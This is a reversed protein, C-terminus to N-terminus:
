PLMVSYNYGKDVCWSSTLLGAMERIWAEQGPLKSSAAVAPLAFADLAADQFTQSKWGGCLTSVNQKAITRVYSIIFNAQEQSIEGKDAKNKYIVDILILGTPFYIVGSTEPESETATSEQVSVYQECMVGDKDRDLRKGNTKYLSASIKPRANGSKVAKAAASKSKAVGNPYKKLLQDCNSYAKASSQVAQAPTAIGAMLGLGALAVVIKKM